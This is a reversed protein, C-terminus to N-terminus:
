QQRATGYRFSWPCRTTWACASRRRTSKVKSARKCSGRTTSVSGAGEGSNRLHLRPRRGIIRALLVVDASVSPASPRSLTRPSTHSGPAQASSLSRRPGRRSTIDGARRPIHITPTMSILSQVRGALRSSSFDQLALANV